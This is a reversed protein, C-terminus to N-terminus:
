FYRSLYMVRAASQSYGSYAAGHYIFVKFKPKTETGRDDIQTILASHKVRLTQPTIQKYGSLNSSIM